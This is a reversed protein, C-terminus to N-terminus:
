SAAHVGINNLCNIEYLIHTNTFGMPLEMATGTRRVMAPSGPLHDQYCTYAVFIYVVFSM